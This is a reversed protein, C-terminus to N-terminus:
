ARRRWTQRSGHGPMDKTIHEYYELQSDDRSLFESAISGVTAKGGAELLKRIM